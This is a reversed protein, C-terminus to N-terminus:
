DPRSLTTRISEYLRDSGFKQNDPDLSFINHGRVALAGKWRPELFFSIFAAGRQAHRDFMTRVQAPAMAKLPHFETVGYGAHGSGALWDTFSTGYTPEGYLSVGLRIEKLPRLSAAIAYKNEDWGPNTFPIIQHTYRPTGALCSQAVIGNFYELYAVVQQNRFEHWLPVLPNHFYSSQDAPLDINGLVLDAAPVSAPLPTQAMPAPTKQARDMIAIQRTGLHILPNSRDELM